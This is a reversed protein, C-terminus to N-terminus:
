HTFRIHPQTHASIDSCLGLLHHRVLVGPNLAGSAYQHKTCDGLGKRRRKADAAFLPMGRLLGGNSDGGEHNGAATWMGTRFYAEESSWM